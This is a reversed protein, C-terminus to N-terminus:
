VAVVTLPRVTSAFMSTAFDEVPRLYMRLWRSPVTFSLRLLNGGIGASWSSIPYARRRLRASFEITRSTGCVCVM